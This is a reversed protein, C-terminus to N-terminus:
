RQTALLSESWFRSPTTCWFVLCCVCKLPLVDTSIAPLAPEHGCSDHSCLEGAFPRQKNKKRANVLLLM